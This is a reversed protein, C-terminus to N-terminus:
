HLVEIATRLNLVEHISSQSHFILRESIRSWDVFENFCAWLFKSALNVRAVSIVWEVSYIDGTYVHLAEKVSM